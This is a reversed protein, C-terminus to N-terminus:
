TSPSFQKLGGLPPIVLPDCSAYALLLDAYGYLVQLDANLHVHVGVVVKTLYSLYGGDPTRIYNGNSDMAYVTDVYQENRIITGLGPVNTRTNPKPKTIIPGAQISTEARSGNLDWRCHTTITGLKLAGVTVDALSTTADAYFPSGSRHGSIQGYLARAHVPGVTQDVASAEFSGGDPPLVAQPQSVTLETIQEQGLDYLTDSDVGVVATIPAVFGGVDTDITPDTAHAASVMTGTALLTVASTAAFLFRFKV